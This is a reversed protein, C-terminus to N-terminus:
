CRYPNNHVNKTNQEKLFIHPSLPLYEYPPAIHQPTCCNKTKNITAATRLTVRKRKKKDRKHDLKNM